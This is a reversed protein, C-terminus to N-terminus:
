SNTRNKRKEANPVYELPESLSAKIFKDKDYSAKQNEAKTNGGKRGNEVNQRHKENARDIQQIFTGYVIKIGRDEFDPTIGDSYHNYVGEFLAWKEAPKYDKTKVFDAWMDFFIMIGEM